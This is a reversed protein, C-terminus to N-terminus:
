MRKAKFVEKGGLVTVLVKAESVETIPIAFLDRDIIVLDALKGM